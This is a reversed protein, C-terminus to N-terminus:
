FARIGFRRTATLFDPNDLTIPTTGTVTLDGAARDLWFARCWSGGFKSGFHIGM